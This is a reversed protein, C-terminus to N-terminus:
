LKKMETSNITKEVLFIIIVLQIMLYPFAISVVSFGMTYFPLLIYLAKGKTKKIIFYSNILFLLLGLLGTEILLTVFLNHAGIGIFNFTNGMGVGFLITNLPVSKLFDIALEIILFKTTFSADKSLIQYLVILLVGILIGSYV